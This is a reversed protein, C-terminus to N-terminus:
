AVLDQTLIGSLDYDALMPPGLIRLGGNSGASVKAARLVNVVQFAFAVSKPFVKM